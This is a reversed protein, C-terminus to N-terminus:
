HRTVDRPCLIDDSPELTAPFVLLFKADSPIAFAMFPFVVQLPQKEDSNFKKRVTKNRYRIPQTPYPYVSM